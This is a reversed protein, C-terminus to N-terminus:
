GGEAPSQCRECETGTWVWTGALARLVMRGREGEEHRAGCRRCSWKEPPVLLSLMEFQRHWDRGHSHFTHTQNRRDVLTVQVVGAVGIALSAIRGACEYAGDGNHDRLTVRVTEGQGMAERLLRALAPGAPHPDPKYDEQFDEFIEAMMM